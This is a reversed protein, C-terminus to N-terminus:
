NTVMTVGQIPGSSSWWHVVCGSVGRFANGNHVGGADPTCVADKKQISATHRRELRGLRALLRILPRSAAM